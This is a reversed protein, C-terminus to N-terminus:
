TKLGFQLLSHIRPYIHFKALIIFSIRLNSVIIPLLYFNHFFAFLILKNKECTQLYKKKDANLQLEIFKFALKVQSNEFEFHEDLIYFYLADWMEAKQQSTFDKTAEFFSEYLIVKDIKM